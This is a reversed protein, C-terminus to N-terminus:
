MGQFNASDAVVPWVCTGLKIAKRAFIDEPDIVQANHNIQIGYLLM